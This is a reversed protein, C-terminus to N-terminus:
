RRVQTSCCCAGRSHVLSRGRGWFAFVVVFFCLVRLYVCGGKRRRNRRRYKAARKEVFAVEWAHWGSLALALAAAVAEAACCTLIAAAHRAVEAEVAPLYRCLRPAASGERQPGVCSASTKLQQTTKNRLTNYTILNPPKTLRARLV